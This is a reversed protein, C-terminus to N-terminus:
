FLNATKEVLSRDYSKNKSIKKSFLLHEDVDNISLNNKRVAYLILPFPYSYHDPNELIDQILESEFNILHFLRPLYISTIRECIWQCTEEIKDPTRPLAVAGGITPSFTKNKEGSSTMALTHETLLNSKYPPNVEKIFNQFEPSDVSMVLAYGKANVLYDLAIFGQASNNKTKKIKIEIENSSININKYSSLLITLEEKLQKEFDLKLNQTM